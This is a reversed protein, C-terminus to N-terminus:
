LSLPHCSMRWSLSNLSRWRRWPGLLLNLLFISGLLCTDSGSTMWIIKCGLLRSSLLNCLARVWIMSLMAGRIVSRLLSNGLFLLSVSSISSWRLSLRSASNWRLPMSRMSSWRLPLGSVSVHSLFLTHSCTWNVLRWRSLRMWIFAQVM